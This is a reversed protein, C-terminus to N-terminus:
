GDIRADATCFPLPPVRHRIQVKCASQNGAQEFFWISGAIGKFRQLIRLPHPTLNSNLNFFADKATSTHALTRCARNRYVSGIFFPLNIGEGTDLTGTARIITGFFTQVHLLM